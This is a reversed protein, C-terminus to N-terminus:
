GVKAFFEVTDSVELIPTTVNGKPFGLNIPSAIKISNDNM